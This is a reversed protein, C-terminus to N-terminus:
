NPVVPPPPASVAPAATKGLCCHKFKRGSGCPCPANRGIKPVAAPRAQANNHVNEPAAAPVSPQAQPTEPRPQANNHVFNLASEPAPSPAQSAAALTARWAPPGLPQYEGPPLLPPTAAMDIIALAAKLRVAHPVAPDILMREVARFADSALSEGKERWSLAKEYQAQALAQRFELSSRLWNGVTNRHIGAAEAAAAATSGASILALVQEQTSTLSPTSSM